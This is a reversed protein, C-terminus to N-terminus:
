PLCEPLDTAVLSALWLSCSRHQLAASSRRTHVAEEAISTAEFEIRDFNFRRRCRKGWPSDQLESEKSDAVLKCTFSANM